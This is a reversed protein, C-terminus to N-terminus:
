KIFEIWYCHLHQHLPLTMYTLIQMLSNVQLFSQYVLTSSTKDTGSISLLDSLHFVFTISLSNVSASCYSLHWSNMTKEELFRQIFAHVIHVDETQEWYIGVTDVPRNFSMCWISILLAKLFYQPFHANVNLEAVSVAVSRCDWYM